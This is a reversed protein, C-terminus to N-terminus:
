HQSLFWGITSPLSGGSSGAADDLLPSTGLSCCEPTLPRVTMATVSMTANAATAIVAIMACEFEDFVRAAEVVVEGVACMDVVVTLGVLLRDDVVVEVTGNGTKTAPLQVPRWGVVMSKAGAQQLTMSLM